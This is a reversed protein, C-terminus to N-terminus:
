YPLMCLSFLIPLFSAFILMFCKAVKRKNDLGFTEWSSTETVDM